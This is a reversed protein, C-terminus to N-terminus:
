HICIESVRAESSGNALRVQVLEGPTLCQEFIDSDESRLTGFWHPESHELHYASLFESLKIGLVLIM